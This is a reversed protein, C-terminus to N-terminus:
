QDITFNVAKIQRDVWIKNLERKSDNLISQFENVITTGKKIKLPVVWVYKNLTDIIGLLFGIGKNFRSKLQMDALDACWINDKFSSYGKRKKFKRIIPKHLEEALQQNKKLKMKLVKVQLSKIM